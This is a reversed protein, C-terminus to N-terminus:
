KILTQLIVRWMETFLSCIYPQKRQQLANLFSIKKRKRDASAWRKCWALPKAQSSLCVKTVVEWSALTLCHVIVYQDVPLCECRCPCPSSYSELKKKHVTLCRFVTRHKRYVDSIYITLRQFLKRCITQKLAIWRLFSINFHVKYGHFTLLTIM